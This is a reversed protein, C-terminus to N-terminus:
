RRNDRWRKNRAGGLNQQMAREDMYVHRSNVNPYRYYQGPSNEHRRPPSNDPSWSEFEPRALLDNRSGPPVPGRAYANHGNVNRNNQYRHNSEFRQRARLTSNNSVVNSQAWNPPTVLRSQTRNSSGVVNSQARSSNLMIETTLHINSSNNPPINQHHVHPNTPAQWQEPLHTRTRLSAVPPVVVHASQQVVVSPQHALITTAPILPQKLTRAPVVMEQPQIPLVNGTAQHINGNASMPQRSFPNRSFDHRPGSQSPVPETSPTPSPLSVVVKNEDDGALKGLSGVGNAKIMDLLKVTADSSLNGAQGSTLAFVLQPNKLLESLLELDPEPMNESSSSAVPPAITESNSILSDSPPELLEVDPLQEIPIEPTLTDDPDMERDWPEKPDSPIEQISRYVIERERRIRNKQGEVEKSNAGDAVCWEERINVEPPTQWPIEIRKYKKWPPEKIDLFTEQPKDPKSFANDLKRDGERKTKVPSVSFSPVFSVHSSTCRNFSEPMVKEDSCTMTKGHKSQMYQARMKAKQIDDASLPRSKTTSTLRAVQPIRVVSRQGPNEMMQVKRREKM